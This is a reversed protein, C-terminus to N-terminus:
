WEASPLVILATDLSEDGVKLSAKYEGAPLFVFLIRRGPKRYVYAKGM